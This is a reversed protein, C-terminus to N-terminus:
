LEKIRINRYWAVDGHGQLAIKGKAHPTAYAWKSFKSKAVMAKWADSGYEYEVVKKGNLWHEVHNNQVSIRGKNWEGASKVVSLDAPPIMDYNAGTLQNDNLQVLKGEKDRWEYGKDDIVQFEPGSHYPQNNQPDELIKYIVGSNGKAQVKFEFELDFNEYDKDSVLDGQKGDTTLAGNDARWGNTDTKLYRHWGTTTKGDFLATWKAKKTPPGALAMTVSLIGILLLTRKM